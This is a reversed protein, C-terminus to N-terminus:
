LKLIYWELAFEPDIKGTKMMLDLKAADIMRRRLGETKYRGSGRLLKQAVFPKTKMERAIADAPLRKESLYRAMLMMRIQRILLSFVGFPSEGELYFQELMTLAAGKNGGMAYDVMKFVNDEISQPMVAAVDEPTISERGGVYDLIKEVENDVMEMNKNANELYLSQTIFQEVARRSPKKGAKIWRRGIWKELETRNLKDYEVIEAQAKFLKYLKKRKDPSKDYVILVTTPSPNKLYVEVRDMGSKDSIKLLQAAERVVVVRRESMLPLTECVAVIETIDPNKDEFVTYNLQEMGGQVLTKVLQAEMMGAIHSEEGTFLYVPAIEKNKIARMLVQYKM